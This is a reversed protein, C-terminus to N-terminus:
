WQATLTLGVRYEPPEDNVSERRTTELGLRFSERDERPLELRWGLSYERTGDSLALGIAPIAMLQGGFVEHGYGFRMALRRPLAVEGDDDALETLSEWSPSADMGGHVSLGVQPRLTLSPGRKSSSDPDWTVWGALGYESFSSDEHTLLARGQVEVEIGHAPDTWALKSGVDIGFGTEADGGDHRVGIEFTPVLQGGGAELGRGMGELGIRLRTM